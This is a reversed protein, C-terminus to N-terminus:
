FLMSKKKERATKSPLHKFHTKLSSFWPTLLTFTDLTLPLSWTLIQGKGKGAELPQGSEKTRTRVDRGRKEGLKQWWMAVEEETM